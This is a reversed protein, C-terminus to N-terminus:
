HPGGSALRQPKSLEKLTATSRRSLRPTESRERCATSCMALLRTESSSSTTTTFLEPSSRQPGGLSGATPRPPSPTGGGARPAPVFPSATLTRLFTPRRESQRPVVTSPSGHAPPLTRSAPRPFPCSLPQRKPHTYITAYRPYSSSPGLLNPIPFKPLRRRAFRRTFHALRIPHTLKTTSTAM